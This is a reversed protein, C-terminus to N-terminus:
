RGRELLLEIMKLSTTQDTSPLDPRGGHPLTNLDVAEYLPTRGWWDWKNPDAGASLLYAGTDFHGNTVAMILPTIGEPDPLNLDAKGAVLHKM